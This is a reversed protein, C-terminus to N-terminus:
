ARKHTKEDHFSSWDAELYILEYKDDISHVKGLGVFNPEDDYEQVLMVKEGVTPLKDANEFSSVLLNPDKRSFQNPDIAIRPMLNLGNPFGKEAETAWLEIDEDTFETGDHATYKM